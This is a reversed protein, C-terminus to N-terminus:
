QVRLVDGIQLNNDFKQNLARLDRLDMNYKRAIASLTDGRKVTYTRTQVINDYAVPSRSTLTPEVLYERQGNTLNRVFANSFRANKVQALATRAQSESSFEGVQVKYFGNEFTYYPPGIQAIRQYEAAKPPLSLAAVQVTYYNPVVSPQTSITGGKAGLYNGQNIYVPSNDYNSPGPLAIEGPGLVDSGSTFYRDQLEQILFADRYRPLSRILQLARAADRESGFTGVRVKYFSNDRYTYIPGVSRLDAFEQFTPRQDTAEVQVSLGAPLIGRTQGLSEYSGVPLPTSYYTRQALLSATSFLILLCISLRINM